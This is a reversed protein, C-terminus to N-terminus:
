ATGEAPSLLAKVTVGTGQTPPVIRGRYQVYTVSEACAHTTDKDVYCRVYREQPQWLDIIVVEGDDDDAITIKSGALDAADSMNAAAGQQAKFSNTGSAEIAALQGIMLVGDWGQMDVVAGTRDATGTAYALGVSVKTHHTLYGASM